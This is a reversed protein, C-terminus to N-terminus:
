NPARALEERLSAALAHVSNGNAALRGAYDDRRSAMVSRGNILIDLVRLGSERRRLRWDLNVLSGAVTLRSSALIENEGIKREGTYELAEPHPGIRRILARTIEELMVDTFERREAGSAKGWAQSLVGQAMAEIDFISRMRSQAASTGSGQAAVAVERILAITGCASTCPSPAAAAWGLSFGVLLSTLVVLVGPQLRPRSAALGSVAEVKSPVAMTLFDNSAFQCLLAAPPPADQM